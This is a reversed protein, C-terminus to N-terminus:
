GLGGRLRITLSFSDAEITSRKSSAFPQCSHLFIFPQSRRLGERPACVRWEGGCPSLISDMLFPERM